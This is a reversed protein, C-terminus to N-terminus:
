LPLKEPSGLMVHKKTEVCRKTQIKFIAWCILIIYLKFALLDIGVQNYQQLNNLTLRAAEQKAVKRSDAASSGWEDDDM